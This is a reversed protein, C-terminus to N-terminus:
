TNLYRSLGFSTRYPPFAPQYYVYTTISHLVSLVLLLYTARAGFILLPRLVIESGSTGVSAVFKYRSRDSSCWNYNSCGGSGIGTKSGADLIDWNM